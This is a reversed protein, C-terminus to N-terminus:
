LVILTKPQPIKDQLAFHLMAIATICYTVTHPDFVKHLSAMDALGSMTQIFQQVVIHQFPDGVRNLTKSIKPGNWKKQVLFKKTQNESM